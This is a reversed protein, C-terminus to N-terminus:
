TPRMAAKDEARPWRARSASTLHHLAREHVEAARNRSRGRRPAEDRHAAEALACLHAAIGVHRVAARDHDAVVKPEPRAWRLRVEDRRGAGEDLDAIADDDGVA